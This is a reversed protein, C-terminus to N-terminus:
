ANAEMQLLREAEEDSLKEIEKVLGAEIVIALERITPTEFLARLPLNFRFTERLRGIIQTALLSHGGLEFFNDYIGITEIGLLEQWIGAITQEVRSSPAVYINTLEPRPHATSRVPEQIAAEAELSVWQTIRAQLDGTSIIVRAPTSPSLLQGFVSMGEDPTVGLEAFTKVVSRQDPESFRWFDWDISIWPVSGIQSMRQAFTDVLANTATVSYLGLGGLVSSITSTLMCFDLPAGRLVKELVFMGRAKPHFYIEAQERDLDPILHTARGTGKVAHIVGHLAGFREYTQEVALRMQAEDTVDAQVTFVEGGLRELEEVTQMRSAVQDAPSRNVLVLRAGVERALYQAFASGVHGLGGTILYVGGKRLLTQAGPGESRIQEFSQVWRHNDRYAVEADTADSNFEQLLLELLKEERWTGPEPLTLDISRCLVNPYEQRVVKCPGVAVAKEVCLEEGGTVDQASDTLVEIRASAASSQETLAQTLYLLSYFGTNLCNDLFSLDPSRSEDRTVNWAHVIREPLREERRLQSFLADYDSREAPRLRFVRENVVEFRESALVTVVDHGERELRRVIKEAFGGANGFVLRRSKHSTALAAPLLSRKWVPLYFWEPPATKKYAADQQKEPSQAGRTAAPPDIWFRQREFPYSPLPVRSTEEGTHFASWDINVGALWLKGLANLLVAEDPEKDNPHRITNIIAGAAGADPLQRVLTSLARGPGVEVLISRKQKLLEHMGDSFRVPQRLHQAWYEPSTAQEDTIWTGTVNSIYPITPANLKIKAVAAAFTEMIPTMLDSHAAIKVHLRNADISKESVLRELEDIEHLPGSVVCLAPGNLAALSCHPGLLPEVDTASMPLSLMGGAATSQMLRGRLTVLALADEFSIVGAICAAVYEGFSHGIMAHPRVGWAMLLKALAYEVVFLVPSIFGVDKFLSMAAELKDESPFLVERPDYGLLPEIVTFGRHIEERFLPETRYLEHTMNVYQTGMGPLMFVVRRDEGAESIKAQFIRQPDLSELAVAADEGDRAVVFRRHAFTRRGVNLTYAVDSFSLEPHQRLHHALNATTTELATATRASLCLLQLPRRAVAPEYAPAEELIVHANTGGIGFSSVGARRPAGNTKWPALSANVYFASNAFDITPNPESFHLSPPLMKNKLALITKILGTIGAAADLHGMNSKVSGVGCFNKKETSASFAKTLAAIEIPDGLPTATGHAEVYAITEADVGAVTLAEKIVQAQGDVSPATFGVKVSGDNNIASGRLIAHIYDGDEYADGLRKLVVLGVGSGAPTGQARADFPRCHGDPPTIGGEQYVYGSKLPTAVKVGGALAMDCEGNLLSQCALHVAVLSTSCFTQVDFSPGRLNLKYSVNTTLTDQWNLLGAQWGLADRVLDPHMMLNLLYLNLGGGAFVGIPARYMEPDYGANELAEWACELLIRHQPNMIEGERPSLGFFSADFMDAGELIGRAKVYNPLALEEKSIGAELLEEDSFFSLTEVGDRLREWFEDVNRAGPFRGALGIVAISGDGDSQLQNDQKSM